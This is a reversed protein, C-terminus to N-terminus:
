IGCARSVYGRRDYLFRTREFFAIEPQIMLGIDVKHAPLADIIGV